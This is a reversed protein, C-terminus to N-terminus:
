FTLEEPTVSKGTGINQSQSSASQSILGTIKALSKDSADELNLFKTLGTEIRFTELERKSLPDNMNVGILVVVFSEMTPLEQKRQKDLGELLDKIMQPSAHQSANEVGDTIIYCIANCDFDKDVLKQGYEIISNVMDYVADNLNTLGDCKLKPYDQEANIASLPRFGHIEEIHDRSNFLTSRVLLNEARPLRKCANVSEIMCKRIGDAFDEVSPTKDGCIGVLTFESAIDALAEPTYGSYQFTGMENKWVEEPETQNFIPM